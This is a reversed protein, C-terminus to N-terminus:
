SLLLLFTHKDNKNSKYGTNWFVDDTPDKAVITVDSVDSVAEGETDTIPDSVVSVAFKVIDTICVVPEMTTVICIVDVVCNILINDVAVGLIELLLRPVPPLLSSPPDFTPAMTAGITTM